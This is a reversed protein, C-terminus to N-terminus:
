DAKTDVYFGFHELADTGAPPADDGAVLALSKALDEPLPSRFELPSGTVPCEINPM